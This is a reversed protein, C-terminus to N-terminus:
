RGQLRMFDRSFDIAALLQTGFVRGMLLTSRYCYKEEIIDIELESLMKHLRNQGEGGYFSNSFIFNKKRTISWVLNVIGVRKVNKKDLKKIYQMVGPSSEGGYCGKKVLILVEEDRLLPSEAVNFCPVKLGEAIKYAVYKCNKENSDYLIIGKM